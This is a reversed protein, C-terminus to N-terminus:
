KKKRRRGDYSAVVRGPVWPDSSIRKAPKKAAAQLATEPMPLLELKLKEGAPMPRVKEAQKQRATRLEMDRLQQQERRKPPEKPKQPEKPPAKKEQLKAARPQVAAKSPRQGPKAKVTPEMVEMPWPHMLVEPIKKAILKEIDRLYPLEDYNCFSVAIGDRGARGTRGIRHVYTEPVNPLEFNIVCALEHVDIGRAAIDTAVLVRISGNKFSELAAVRANQSKNGHIAMAPIGAKTLTEAVRNAGHKTNTFVLVSPWPGERLIHELLARKNAKDVKYVRQRIADATSSQPSVEVRVPEHLITRSLETIELPMTASFLLTQRKQPLRAIVKRVDHIFGMDLMRDAEDLVFIELKDLRIHGQSCLDNLRGPTAVLIDVGKSIAEVQPNQGVGGFIVATRINLYKGYQGFNEYIQLALERTPTLVLARIPKHSDDCRDKLRQLIPIAFAATKGTGTQACGVLDKGQGVPGIAARQIPTPSKYGLEKVARLIEPALHLFDFTM